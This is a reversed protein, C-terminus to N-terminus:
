KAPLCFYDRGRELHYNRSRNAENFKGQFDHFGTHNERCRENHFCTNWANYIGERSRIPSNIGPINSVILRTGPPCLSEKGGGRQFANICSSGVILPVCGALIIALNKKFTM